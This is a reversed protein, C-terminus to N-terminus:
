SDDHTALPVVTTYIQNENSISRIRRTPQHYMTENLRDFDVRLEGNEVTAYEGNHGDALAITIKGDIDDEGGHTMAMTPVALVLAVFVAIALVATRM